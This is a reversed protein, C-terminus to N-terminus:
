VHIVICTDRRWNRKYHLMLDGECLAQPIENSGSLGWNDAYTQYDKQARTTLLSSTAVTGPMTCLTDQNQHRLTHTHIQHTQRTTPVIILRSQQHNGSLQRYPCTHGAHALERGRHTCTDISHFLSIWLQAHGSRSRKVRAHIYLTSSM